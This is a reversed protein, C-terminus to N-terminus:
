KKGKKKKKVGGEAVEEHEEEAEDHSLDGESEAENVLDHGLEEALTGESGQGAADEDSIQELIKAEVMGDIDGENAGEIQADTLIQGVVLDHQFHAQDRQALHTNALVRYKM